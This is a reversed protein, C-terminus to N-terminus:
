GREVFLDTGGALWRNWTGGLASASIAVAPLEVTWHVVSLLSFGVAAGILGYALSRDASGVRKLGGPLRVCAGCCPWRSCAWAPRARRSGGSCAPQEDGHDSSMTAIKFYPHISPSLAWARASWRSTAFSRCARPGSGRPRGWTPAASRPSAASCCRGPRRWPRGWGWAPWCCCADPRLGALAAGPMALGPLGVLPWRRSRVAPLVVPGAMLGVLFAGVALLMVCCSSWAGRARSAWGTPWARAAAGRALGPPPRDGAGAAPGAIGLALFAGPGGM